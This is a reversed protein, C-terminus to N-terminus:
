LICVHRLMKKHNQIFNLSFFFLFFVCVFFVFLGKKNVLGNLGLMGHSMLLCHLGLNSAASRPTKDPDVSNANFVPLKIFCVLWVGRINSILLDLFHLCFFGYLM